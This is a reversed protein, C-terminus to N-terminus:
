TDRFPDMGLIM